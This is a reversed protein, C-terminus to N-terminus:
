DLLIERWFKEKCASSLDDDDSFARMIKDVNNFQSEDTFRISWECQGTAMNLCRIGQSDYVIMYLVDEKDPSDSPYTCTVYQALLLGAGEEEEDDKERDKLHDKVNCILYEMVDDADKDTVKGTTEDKSKEEKEETELGAAERLAEQVADFRKLIKDWEKETYTGAGIPISPEMTGNKVKVYFEEKRDRILESFTDTLRKKKAPTETGGDATVTRGRAIDAGGGTVGSIGM